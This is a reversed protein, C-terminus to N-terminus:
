EPEWRPDIRRLEIFNLSNGGHRAGLEAHTSVFWIVSEGRPIDAEVVFEEYTLGSDGPNPFTERWRVEDGVALGMVTPEDTAFFSADRWLRWEIVDGALTEALTPQSLVMYNCEDLDMTMSPEAGFLEEFVALEGCAREDTPPASEAFPHDDPAEVWAGHEILQAPERPEACGVGLAFVLAILPLLHRRM